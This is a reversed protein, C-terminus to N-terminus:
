NQVIYLMTSKKMFSDFTFYSIGFFTIEVIKKVKGGVVSIVNFDIYKWFLFSPKNGERRKDMM